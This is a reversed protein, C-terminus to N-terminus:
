YDAEDFLSLSLDVQPKEEAAPVQKQQERFALMLQRADANRQTNLRYYGRRGTNEILSAESKSNRLLYQQVYGHIDELDPQLFLTCNLNYIHKALVQVAIGHEGVEMLIDLIQKDYTMIM